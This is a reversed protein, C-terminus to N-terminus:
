VHGVSVQIGKAMASVEVSIPFGVESHENSLFGGMLNAKREKMLPRALVVDDACSVLDPLAAIVETPYVGPDDKVSTRNALSGVL